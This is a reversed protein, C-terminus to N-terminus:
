KPLQRRLFHLLFYLLSKFATDECNISNNIKKSLKSQNRIRFKSCAPDLAPDAVSFSNSYTSMEAEDNIKGQYCSFNAYRDTHNRKCHEYRPSSFRQFLRSTDSLKSDVLPGSKYFFHDKKVNRYPRDLLLGETLTLLKALKIGTGYQAPGRM